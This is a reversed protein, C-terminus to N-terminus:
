QIELLVFEAGNEIPFVSRGDSKGFLRVKKIVKIKEANIIEM